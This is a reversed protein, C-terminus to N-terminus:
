SPIVKFYPKKIMMKSWLIRLTETRFAVFQFILLSKSDRVIKAFVNFYYAIRNNVRNQYLKNQRAIQCNSTQAAFYYLLFLQGIRLLM